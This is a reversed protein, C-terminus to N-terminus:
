NDLTKNVKEFLIKFNEPSIIISETGQKLVFDNGAKYAFVQGNLDEVEVWMFDDTTGKTWHNSMPVDGFALHHRNIMVFVQRILEVTDKMNVVSVFENITHENEYGASVNVTNVNNNAFVSADSLEDTKVCKWDMGISKSVNEMFFGVEDSCFPVDYGVVIDRNGKRDVVIALDVDNFFSDDISDAGASGVEESVTFALKINGNFSEPINNLVELIIAIGARDDAGLIARRGNYKAIVIEGKDIIVKGKKVGRVTDMHASLMITAGKGTGIKKNGILNGRRDIFLEDVHSDLSSYLWNRIEAEEGSVGNIKLLTLLNEKLSELLM